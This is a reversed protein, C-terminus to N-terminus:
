LTPLDIARDVDRPLMRLLGELLYHDAHPLSIESGDAAPRNSNCRAVAAEVRASKRTPCTQSLATLTRLAVRRYEPEDTAASLDLLGCAMVAGVALRRATALFGQDGTRRNMTAFGHM